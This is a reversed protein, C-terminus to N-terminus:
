LCLFLWEGFVRSSPRPDHLAGTGPAMPRARRPHWPVRGDRTGHFTGTDPAMSRLLFRVGSPANLALLEGAQISFRSDVIIASLIIDAAM